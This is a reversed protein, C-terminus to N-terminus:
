KNPETFNIKYIKEVYLTTGNIGQVSDKGLVYIDNAKITCHSSFSMDAGFILVNKDNTINGSTFSGDEDFCIGYGEYKNRSSESSNEVIDIAGFLANQITYDTNMSFNIPDLKYVIYINLVDSTNPHLVKDQRFYNGSFSINMRGNNDLSLLLSTADPIARLDSDVSYNDIGRSKWLTLKGNSDKKFSYNRCEYVLYSEQSYYYFGRSFSNERQVDGAIDEKQKLRSEFALIDSANKKM